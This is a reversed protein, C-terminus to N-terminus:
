LVGSIVVAYESFGLFLWAYESVWVFLWLMSQFICLYGPMSQFGGSYKSFQLFLGLMSQFGWFYDPLRQFVSIVLCVIFSVSIVWAHDSFWLLVRAYESFM